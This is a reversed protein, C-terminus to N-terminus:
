KTPLAFVGDWPPAPPSVKYQQCRTLLAQSPGDGPVIALATKFLAAAGNWDGSYMAQVGHSYAAALQKSTDDLDATMGMLEYIRVPRSKGMVLVRDIERGYVKGSATAASFTAECVLIASGYVKNAGELRSATNVTDGMMTYDMRNKSGMNGVVADGTAMGIRMFLLPKNQGEWQTRLQALRKQMEIAVKAAAEEQHDIKTPAGFFAIIADGEFKDVTGGHKLIIDTMETLFENLLGVLAEPSLSESIRTFSAVDSFFATIRRKEGGLKLSEPTEELQRVVSPSLYTSFANRIFRKQRTVTLFTHATMLGYTILITLLPYVMNLICGHASFAYQCALVYATFGTLAIAAGKVAGAGSILLGLVVALGMMTLLTIGGSWPPLYLFNKNLMMDVLTAHVEPGPYVAEFPTTVADFIGTATAGLIVIKDKVAGPPIHDNLIDTASIYPFTDTGGRYNIFLKGQPTTPLHIEKGPSFDTMGWVAVEGRPDDHLFASVAQVSLPTYLDSELRVVVPVTRITGDADPIANFFGSRRTARSIEAISTTAGFANVFPFDMAAASQYILVNCAAPQILELTRTRQAPTTHLAQAKEMQLFFGTIVQASATRISRALLQDHDSQQALNELYQFIEPSQIQHQALKQQIESIHPTMNFPDPESFVIDLAIVAAGAQSLRTILEAIRSRPWMWKGERALSKEDIAAIVVRNDIAMPGRARFRLDITKLAMDEFFAFHHTMILISLIMGGLIM